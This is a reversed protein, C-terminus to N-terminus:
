NIEKTPNSQSNELKEVRELLEKHLDFLENVKRMDINSTMIKYAEHYFMIESLIFKTIETRDANIVDEVDQFITHATGKKLTEYFAYIEDEDPDKLFDETSSKYYEINSIRSSHNRLTETVDNYVKYITEKLKETESVAKPITYSQDNSPLNGVNKLTNSMDIEPEASIDIYESGFLANDGGGFMYEEEENETTETSGLSANETTEHPTYPYNIPTNETTYQPAKEPTGLQSIKNGLDVVETPLFSKNGNKKRLYEAKKRCKKCCYTQDDRFPEFEKHCIPCIRKM